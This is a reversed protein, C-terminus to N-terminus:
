NKSSVSSSFDDNQIINQVFRFETTTKGKHERNTISLHTPIRREADDKHVPGGKSIKGLVQNCIIYEMNKFSLM